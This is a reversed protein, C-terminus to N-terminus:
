RRGCGAHGCGGCFGGRNCECTCPGTSPHRRVRDRHTDLVTPRLPSSKVLEMEANLVDLVDPHERAIQRLLDLALRAARANASGIRHAEFRMADLHELLVAVAITSRQQEVQVSFTTNDTNMHMTM